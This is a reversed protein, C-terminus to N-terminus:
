ELKSDHIRELAEVRKIQQETFLDNRLLAVEQAQQDASLNPNDLITERQAIFRQFDSDFQAREADLASLRQAANEGVM